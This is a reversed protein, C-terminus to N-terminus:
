VRPYLLKAKQQTDGDGSHPSQCILGTWKSASTGLMEVTTGNTMCVTFDTIGDEPEKKIETLTAENKSPELIARIAPLDNGTADNYVINTVLGPLSVNSAKQSIIVTSYWNNMNIKTPQPITSATTDTIGMARVVQRFKYEQEMKQTDYILKDAVWENQTNHTRLRFYSHTRPEGQTTVVVIRNKLNKQNRSMKKSERSGYLDTSDKIMETPHLINFYSPIKNIDDHKVCASTDITLAVVTCKYFVM